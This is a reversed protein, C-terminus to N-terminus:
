DVDAPPSSSVGHFEITGLFDRVALQKRYAIAERVAQDVAQRKSRFQGLRMLETVAELDIDLNTAMRACYSTRSAQLM